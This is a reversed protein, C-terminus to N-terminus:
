DERSIQRIYHFIYQQAVGAYAGLDKPDLKGGFYKKEM